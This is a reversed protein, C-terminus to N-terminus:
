NNEESLENMEALESQIAIETMEAQIDEIMTDQQEKFGKIEEKFARGFINGIESSIYMAQYARLGTGAPILQGLIINEKLGNLNDIKSSISAESLVKTTEQFSAASLWSETTLSAQTIGLLVAESIAPDAPRFATLEKGKNKLDINAERIRKRTYLGGENFRSDGKDTIVVMNKLM